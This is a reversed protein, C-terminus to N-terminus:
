GFLAPGLRLNMFIVCGVGCIVGALQKKTLRDRFLIVGILTMVLSHLGAYCPFLLMGDVNRQAFIYTKQYIGLSLGALAAYLAVNKLRKGHYCARGQGTGVRLAYLGYTLLASLVYMCVLYSVDAGPHEVCYTRSFYQQVTVAIGTSFTAALTLALWGKKATSSEGREASLLMSAVLLVVGALQTPYVKEHYMLVSCVAPIFINFNVILVTLSVPGSTLAASYTVQFASTGISVALAFLVCVGTPLGPRFLLTLIVSIATFLLASFLVSDQVSRVYKRSCRGQVTVKISGLLVLLLVTLFQM